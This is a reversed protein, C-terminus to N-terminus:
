LQNKIDNCNNVEVLNNSKEFIIQGFNFFLMGKGNAHSNGQNKSDSINAIKIQFIEFM